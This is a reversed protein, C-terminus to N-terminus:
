LPPPSQTLIDRHSPPTHDFFSGVSVLKQTFTREGGGNKNQGRKIISANLDKTYCHHGDGSHHHHAMGYMWESLNRRWWNGFLAYSSHMRLIRFCMESLCTTRQWQMMGMVYAQYPYRQYVVLETDIIGFFLPMAVGGGDREGNRYKNRKELQRACALTPIGAM